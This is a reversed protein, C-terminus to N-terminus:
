RPSIGALWHPFPGHGTRVPKILQLKGVTGEDYRLNLSPAIVCSFGTQPDPPCPGLGGGDLLANLTSHPRTYIRSIAGGQLFPQDIFNLVATGRRGENWFVANFAGPAPAYGQGTSISYLAPHQAPVSVILDGVGTADDMERQYGITDVFEVPMDGTHLSAAYHADNTFITLAYIHFAGPINVGAKAAEAPEVVLIGLDIAVQPQRSSPRQDVTPNIGQFNAITVIGQDPRGFLLSSAPLITYEPPVLPLLKSASVAIVNAVEHGLSNGYTHLVEANARDVFSQGVLGLAAICVVRTRKFLRHSFRRLVADPKYSVHVAPSRAIQYSM